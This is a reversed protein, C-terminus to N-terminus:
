PASTVTVTVTATDADGNDNTLRYVFEFTGPTSPTGQLTQYVGGVPPFSVAMGPPVDGSVFQVSGVQTVATDNSTLDVDVFVGAVFEFVDDVADVLVIGGDLTQDATVSGGAVVSVPVNAWPSGTSVFNEGAPAIFTLVYAGPDVSFSYVGSGDTVASDLYAGRSGDVNAVFRDVM